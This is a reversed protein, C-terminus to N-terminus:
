WGMWLDILNDNYECHRCLRKNDNNTIVINATVALEDNGVFAPSSHLAKSSNGNASTVLKMADDYLPMTIRKPESDSKQFECQKECEDLYKFDSVPWKAVTDKSEYKPQPSAYERVFM